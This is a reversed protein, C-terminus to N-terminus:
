SIFAQAQKLLGLASISEGTSPKTRSMVSSLIRFSFGETRCRSNNNSNAQGTHQPTEDNEDHKPNTSCDLSLGNGRADPVLVPQWQSFTVYCM